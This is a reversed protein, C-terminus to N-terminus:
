LLFGIPTVMEPGLPVTHIGNSHIRVHNALVNFVLSFSLMLLDLYIERSSKPSPVSQGAKESPQSLLGRKPPM